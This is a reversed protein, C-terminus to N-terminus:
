YATKESQQYNRESHLINKLKFYDWKTVKKQKNRKDLSVFGFFINGLGIDFLM